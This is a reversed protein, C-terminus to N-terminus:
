HKKCGIEIFKIFNMRLQYAVMIVNKLNMVMIVPIYISSAILVLFPTGGRIELM